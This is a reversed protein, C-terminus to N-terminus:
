RATSGRLKVELSDVRDAILESAAWRQQLRALLEELESRELGAALTLMVRTEPATLRATPDAPELSIELVAPEAEGSATFEAAIASDAWAPVLPKGLAFSELATRRVGYEREPTAADIMILDTLEQAAALAAQAGPVPIPRAEPHWRQMTEVSSFIPLVRRGDPAAVTVISLEQTKEVIRGEPTEGLEGAEAILPVLFREAGMAGIATAHADALARLAAPDGPSAALQEGAARVRAVASEVGAPTTGDDGAFATDHHDFTRGEWPFGASDVDGGPVLSAPLAPGPAPRQGEPWGSSPLQKIAM